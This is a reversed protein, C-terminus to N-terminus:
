YATHKPSRTAFADAEAYFKILNFDATAILALTKEPSFKNAIGFPFRSGDSHIIRLFWCNQVIYKACDRLM